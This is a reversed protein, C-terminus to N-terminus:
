NEVICFVGGASSVAGISRRDVGPKATAERTKPIILMRPAAIRITGVMRAITNPWM